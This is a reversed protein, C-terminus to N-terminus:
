TFHSQLYWMTIQGFYLLRFNISSQTTLDPLNEAVQAPLLPNFQQFPVRSRIVHM